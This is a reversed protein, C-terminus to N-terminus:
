RGCKMTDCGLFGYENDKVWNMCLLIVWSIAIQWLGCLEDFQSEWM